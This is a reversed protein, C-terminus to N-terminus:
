LRNEEHAKAINELLVKATPKSKPKAQTTAHTKASELANQHSPLKSAEEDSYSATNSTKSPTHNEVVESGVQDVRYTYGVGNFSPYHTKNLEWGEKVDTALKTAFDYLSTTTVIKTAM